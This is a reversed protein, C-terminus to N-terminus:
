ERTMVMNDVGSKQIAGKIQTLRERESAEAADANGVFEL